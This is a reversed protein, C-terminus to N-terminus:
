GTSYVESDLEFQSAELDVKPSAHFDLFHVDGGHIQVQNVRWPILQKIADIWVKSISMQTQESNPGEVLNIKPDNVIVSAREVGRFIQSWQLSVSTKPSYFFHVPIKGTKKDLHVDYVDIRALWPHIRVSEVRGTYDPLDSLERNIYNRALFPASFWIVAGVLFLGLAISDFVLRVRGNIFRAPFRTIEPSFPPEAGESRSVARNAPLQLTEM